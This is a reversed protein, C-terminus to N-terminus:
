MMEQKRKAKFATWTRNKAKKSSIPHKPYTDTVSSFDEAHVIKGRVQKIRHGRLAGCKEIGWTFESEYNNELAKIAEEREKPELKGDTNGDFRKAIFYEREDVVGDNNLDYSIDPKNDRKLKEKLECQTRCV